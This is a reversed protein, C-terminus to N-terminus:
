QVSDILGHSPSMGCIEFTVETMEYWTQVKIKLLGHESRVYM